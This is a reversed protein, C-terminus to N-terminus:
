LTFGFRFFYQPDRENSPEQESLPTYTAKGASDTGRRYNVVVAAALRKVAGM